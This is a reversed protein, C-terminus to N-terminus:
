QAVPLTLHQQLKAMVNPIRDKTVLLVTRCSQMEASDEEWKGSLLAAAGVPTYTFHVDAEEFFLEEESNIFQLKSSDFKKGEPTLPCYTKCIMIYHTFEYCNKHKKNSRAEVLETQLKEFMPLSVQPPINIFRENIIWGVCGDEKNSELIMKFKEKCSEETEFKECNLALIKLLQKIADNQEHMGNLSLCSTVGFVQDNDDGDDSEDEEFESQKLLTGIFNQGILINAIESIDVNDKPFLQHLMQRIGHFDSDTISFGEFDVQIEENIEMNEDGEQEEDSGMDEVICEEDSSEDEPRPKKPDAM